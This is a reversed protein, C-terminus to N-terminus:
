RTLFEFAFALANVLVFAMLAVVACVLARVIPWEPGKQMPLTSRFSSVWCGVFLLAYALINFAAGCTGTPVSLIDRESCTLRAIICTALATAALLLSFLSRRGKTM